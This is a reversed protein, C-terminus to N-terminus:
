EERWDWEYLDDTSCKLLNALQKAKTIGLLNRMRVYDSIQQKLMGSKDALWQQDKGIKELHEPIRSRIPVPVM